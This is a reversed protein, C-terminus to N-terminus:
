SSPLFSPPFSDALPFTLAVSLPVFILGCDRSCLLRAPVELCVGGGELLHELYYNVFLLKKFTVLESEPGPHM